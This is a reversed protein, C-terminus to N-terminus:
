PGSLVIMTGVFRVRHNVTLVVSVHHYNGDCRTPGAPNQAQVWGDRIWSLMSLGDALGDTIRHEGHIEFSDTDRARSPIKVNVSLTFDKAFVSYTTTDKHYRYKELEILKM